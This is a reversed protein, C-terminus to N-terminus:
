RVAALADGWASAVVLHGAGPVVHLDAAPIVRAWYAGHVPPVAVDAAGYFLSTVAGVAAPDFGWPVVGSATIDTALGVAGSRFAEALMAAVRTRLDLDALAAADAPGAAVTDLQGDEDAAAVVGLADALTAVATEPVPELAQLQRRYEDPIWPVETDPAPTGVLAAARM